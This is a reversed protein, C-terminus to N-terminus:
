NRWGPNPRREQTSGYSTASMCSASMSPIPLLPESSLRARGMHMGTPMSAPSALIAGPPPTIRTWAFQTRGHCIAEEHRLRDYYLNGLYYAAWGDGSNARVAAELVIMEDLRSPFCYDPCAAAAKRYMEAAAEAMGLRTHLHALTYLTIPGSGDIPVPDASQLVAIADQLFGANALDFALDLRQQHDAPPNGTLLFRSWSDLPDLKSTERLWAGSEEDHGLKSLVMCMLNRANLNEGDTLLCLRLHQLAGCWDSRGADIAALAYRAPARWAANWTAKYFAGYAEDDRDQFRLALGLNYFPEGDYPNPNRLTLRAIATRFHSEAQSFEGRRLLRLGLANNCRSDRPDRRLAERWYIDAPRTAHRYQELHLGTIYLEDASPIDEPLPPETAVEPDTAPKV